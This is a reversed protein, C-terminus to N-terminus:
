PRVAVTWDVHRELRRRMHVNTIIVDADAVDPCLQLRVPDSTEILSYIEAIAEPDFKAQLVHVRVPHVMVVHHCHSHAASHCSYHEVRGHLGRRTVSDIAEGIRWVIGKGVVAEDTSDVIWLLGRKDEYSTTGEAWDGIEMEAHELHCLVVDALVGVKFNDATIETWNAVHILFRAQETCLVPTDIMGLCSEGCKRHVNSSDYCLRDM